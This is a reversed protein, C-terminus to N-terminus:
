TYIHLNFYYNFISRLYGPLSDRMWFLYHCAERTSAQYWLKEMGIMMKVKIQIESVLNTKPKWGRSGQNQASLSHTQTDTYTFVICNMTTCKALHKHEYLQGIYIISAYLCLTM